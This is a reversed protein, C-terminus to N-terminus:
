LLATKSLQIYSQKNQGGGLFLRVPSYKGSLDPTQATAHHGFMTFELGISVPLLLRM